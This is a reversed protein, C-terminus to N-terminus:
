PDFTVGNITFEVGEMCMMSHGFVLQHELTAEPLPVVPVLRAPLPLRNM